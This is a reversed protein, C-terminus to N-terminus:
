EHVVVMTGKRKDSSWVGHWGRPLPPDSWFFLHKADSPALNVCGHSQERGFNNHWFAGHLAYSGDYYQVYPVDQISYPLDGAPGDGDMTTTIHKERIRWKGTKTRHDRKKIKSRKGSSILTAYVPTDGEFAMLTKRTLNVDIWKEDSGVEKPRAEPETWTGDADSMWWKDTTQRYRKKDSLHTEGTLGIATYREIRGARKMKGDDVREYKYAKAARIFGALKVGDALEIGKLDPAKPIIMRDTPVILGDTTKYWLRDNWGFTRDIAVFFGKVM